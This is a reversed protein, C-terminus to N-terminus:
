FPPETNFSRSLEKCSRIIMYLSILLVAVCVFAGTSATMIKRFEVSEGYKALMATELTFLSVLAAAFRIAKAALVSPYEHKRFRALDIVSATVAYFTYCASAIIITEHYIIVNDLRITLFAIWTLVVNILMMFIGCLRYHRWESAAHNKGRRMYRLLLFRVVTLLVYYVAITGWWFSRYYIASILKFLAYLLNVTLSIYLSVRTRYGIDNVYKNGYPHAIFRAKLLKYRNPFVRAFFLCLTTLAYASVPYAVYALATNELGNAFVTVLAVISAACLFVTIWIPPFLLKKLTKM